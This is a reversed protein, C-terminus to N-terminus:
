ISCGTINGVACSISGDGVRSFVQHIGSRFVHGVDNALVQCGCNTAFLSRGYGAVAAQRCFVDVVSCLVLNGVFSDIHFGISGAGDDILNGVIGTGISGGLQGILSLFFHALGIALGSGIEATYCFFFGLEGIHVLLGGDVGNSTLGVGVNGIPGIGGVVQLFGILYSGGDGVASVGRNHVLIGLAQGGGDGVPGLGVVGVVGHVFRFLQDFGVIGLVTGGGLRGGLHFIGQYAAAVDNVDNLIEISCAVREDAAGYRIAGGNSTDALICLINVEAGSATGDGIIGLVDGVLSGFGQAITGLVDGVCSGFLNGVLNTIARSHLAFHSSITDGISRFAAGNVVLRFINQIFSGAVDQVKCITFNAVYGSLNSINGTIGCHSTIGITSGEFILCVIRGNFFPSDCLGGNRAVRNFRTLSLHIIGFDHLVETDM